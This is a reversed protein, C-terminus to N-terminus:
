ALQEESIKMVDFNLRRLNAPKAHVPYPIASDTDMMSGILNQPM